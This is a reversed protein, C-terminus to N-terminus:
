DGFFRGPAQAVGVGQAIGIEVGAGRLCVLFQQAVQDAEVRHGLADEKVTAEGLNEGHAAAVLHGAHGLMVGDFGDHDEFRGLLEFGLGRAYMEAVESLHDTPRAVRLTLVSRDPDTM